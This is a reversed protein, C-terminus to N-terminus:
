VTISGIDGDQQRPGDKNLYSHVRLPGCELLLKPHSQPKDRARGARQQSFPLNFVPVAGSSPETMARHQQIGSLNQPQEDSCCFTVPVARLPPRGLGPGFM